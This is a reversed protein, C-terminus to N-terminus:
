KRLADVVLRYKEHIMQRDFARMDELMKDQEEANLYKMASPFFVKDEKRIHGPYIQVLRAFGERIATGGEASGSIYGDRAEALGKVISRTLVHDHTLEAMIRSDDEGLQKNKLERFLIEEEKGHHTRDAYTKIFDVTADIFNAELIRSRNEREMNVRLIEIVQEILRHEIMLPGIPMM